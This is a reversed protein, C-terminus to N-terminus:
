TRARLTRRYACYTLRTVYVCVCMVTNCIKCAYVCALLSCICPIHHYAHRVHSGNPDDNTATVEARTVNISREIKEKCRAVVTDPPYATSSLCRLQPIYHPAADSVTLLPVTVRPLFARSLQLGRVALISLMM